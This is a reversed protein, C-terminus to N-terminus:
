FVPMEGNKKFIRGCMKKSGLFLVHAPLLLCRTVRTAVSFENSLILFM